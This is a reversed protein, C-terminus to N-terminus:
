PEWRRVVVEVDDITLDTVAAEPTAYRTRLDPRLQTAVAGVLKENARRVEVKTVSEDVDVDLVNATARYNAATKSATRPDTLRAYTREPPFLWTVYANALSYAIEEFSGGDAFEDTTGTVGSNVTLTTAAVDADAPPERGADLEGEVPAGPYPRWAATIYVRSHTRVTTEDRVASPYVSRTLPEDGLHTNAVTATALHGALTDHRKREAGAPVTATVTLVTAATADADATDATDNSPVTATLTTVAVGVLLLCVAVDLVTSVGRAM